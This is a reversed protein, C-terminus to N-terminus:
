RQLARADAEAGLACRSAVYEAVVELTMLMSNGDMADVTDGHTHWPAYDIDILLASAVGRALFPSHDCVIYKRQKPKSRCFPAFGRSRGIRFLDRTLRLSPAHHFAHGDHDLRCDGAYGHPM